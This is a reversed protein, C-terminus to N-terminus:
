CDPQCCTVQGQITRDPPALEVWSDEPIPVSSHVLGGTGWIEVLIGWDVSPDEIGAQQWKIPFTDCCKHHADVNSSSPGIMAICDAISPGFRRAFGLNHVIWQQRIRQTHSIDSWPSGWHGYLIVSTSILRSTTEMM